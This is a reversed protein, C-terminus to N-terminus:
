IEFYSFIATSFRLGFESITMKDAAIHLVVTMRFEGTYEELIFIKSLSPEYM